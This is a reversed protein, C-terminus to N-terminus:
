MSFGPRGGGGEEEEPSHKRRWSITQHASNKKRRKGAKSSLTSTSFRSKREKGKGERELPLNSIPVTRKAGRKGRKRKLPSIFFPPPPLVHARNKGGVRKLFLSFHLLNCNVEKEKEKLSFSFLFSPIDGSATM